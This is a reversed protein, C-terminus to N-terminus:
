ITRGQRTEFAARFESRAARIRAYVTNVNIGLAEAIEPATLEEIESLVFVERKADDLAELVIAVKRLAEATAAEDHPGPMPDVTEFDLPELGGKRRERRRHDRAVRVAIGFVWTRVTSRAEFDALRRHVVVFVDQVADDLTADRVGLSKLSRWVFDVCEEYVEDFVLPKRREAVRAMSEPPVDPGVVFEAYSPSATAMEGPHGSTMPETHASSKEELTM